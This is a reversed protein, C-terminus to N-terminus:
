DLKAIPDCRPARRKRNHGRGPRVHSFRKAGPLIYRRGDSKVRVRGSQGNAILGPGPCSSAWRATVPRALEPQGGLSAQMQCINDPLPPRPQQYVSSGSLRVVWGVLGGLLLVPLRRRRDTRSQQSGASHFGAGDSTNSLPRPVATPDNQIDNRDINFGSLTITAQTQQADCHPGVVAPNYDALITRNVADVVVFRELM